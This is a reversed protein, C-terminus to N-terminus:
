KLARAAVDANIDLMAALRAFARAQGVRGMWRTTGNAAPPGVSTIARITPRRSEFPEPWCTKISFRGPPPVLM